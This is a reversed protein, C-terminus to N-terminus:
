DSNNVFIVSEIRRPNEDAEFLNKIEDIERMKFVGKDYHYFHTFVTKLIACYENRTMGARGIGYSWFESVCPIKRAKLFNKAGKFFHGEHGQIDLWILDIADKEIEPHNDLFNDFSVAAVEITKRKQEGRRGKEGTLKIRNDGSNDAAIEFELAANESSLALNFYKIKDALNNQAVNKELLRFSKPSPEFAWAKEFFDKGVLAIGIMGLNAGIDLVTNGIENKLWGEKRLFRISNEIFEIEFERKVFLHKGMLWDKSSVSLLGNETEITVDHETRYHKLTWALVKRYHLLSKAM